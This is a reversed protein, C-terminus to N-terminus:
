VATFAPALLADGIGPFLLPLKKVFRQLDGFAPQLQDRGGESDAYKLHFSLLRNFFLLFRFLLALSGFRRLEFHRGFLRSEKGPDRDTSFLDLELLAINGEELGAAM